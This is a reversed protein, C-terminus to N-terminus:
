SLKYNWFLPFNIALNSIAQVDDGHSQKRGQQRRSPESGAAWYAHWMDALWLLQRYAIRPSRHRTVPKCHVVFFYRASITCNIKWCSYQKRIHQPGTSMFSFPRLTTTLMSYRIVSLSKKTSLKGGEAGDVDAGGGGRDPRNKYRAHRVPVLFM